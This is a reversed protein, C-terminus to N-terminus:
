AEDWRATEGKHITEIGRIAREAWSTAERQPYPASSADEVEPTTQRKRSRETQRLALSVAWAAVGIGIAASILKM